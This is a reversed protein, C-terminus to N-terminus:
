LIKRFLWAFRELAKRWFPRRAWDDPDIEHCMLCDSQLSEELIRGWRPDQFVVNMEYNLLLSTRDLNFSGLTGWTQDVVATKSHLVGHHWEFIRVGAALLRDYYARTVLQVFPHDSKGALLLM